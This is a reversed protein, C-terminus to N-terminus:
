AAALLDDIKRILQEYHYPKAVIQGAPFEPAHRHIKGLIVIPTDSLSAAQRLNDSAAGTPSRDSEADFVILHPHFSDAASLADDPRAAECTVAGRRELLTRLVERSEPSHDVILVRPHAIL